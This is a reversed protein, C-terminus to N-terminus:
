SAAAAVFAGQKGAAAPKDVAVRTDVVAQMGAVVPKDVVPRKGEVFYRGVFASNEAAAALYAAGAVLTPNVAV